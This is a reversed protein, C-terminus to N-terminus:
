HFLLRASVPRYIVETVVGTSQDSYVRGDPPVTMVKYDPYILFERYRSWDFLVHWLYQPMSTADRLKRAEHGITSQFDKKLEEKSGSKVGFLVLQYDETQQDQATISVLASFSFLTIVDSDTGDGLLNRKTEFLAFPQKVSVTQGPNMDPLSYMEYGFPGNITRKHTISSTTPVLEYDYRHLLEEEISIRSPLRLTLGVGKMTKAGRNQITIPLTAMIATHPGFLAGYTVQVPVNPALPFSGLMVLPDPRDLSGSQRALQYSVHISYFTGIVGFIAIAVSLITTIFLIRERRTDKAAPAPSMRDSGTSAPPPGGQPAQKQRSKRQHQKKPGRAMRPISRDYSIAISLLTRGFHLETLRAVGVKAIIPRRCPEAVM